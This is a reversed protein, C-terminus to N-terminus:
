HPEPVCAAEATAHRQTEAPERTSRSLSAAKAASEARGVALLVQEAEALFAEGAPTPVVRRAGRHFLVVGLDREVAAVQRSLTSQTMWLGHAARTFSGHRAVALVATVHRTDM